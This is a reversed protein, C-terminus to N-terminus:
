KNKASLTLSFQKQSNSYVIKISRTKASYCTNKLEANKDM